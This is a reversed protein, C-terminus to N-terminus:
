VPRYQRIGIKTTLVTWGQVLRSGNSGWGVILIVILICGIRVGAFCVPEGRGRTSDDPAAEGAALERANRAVLRHQNLGAQFDRNSGPLNTRKSRDERQLGEQANNPQISGGHCAPAPCADPVNCFSKNRHGSCVSFSQVVGLNEMAIQLCTREFFFITLMAHFDSRFFQLFAFLKCKSWRATTSLGCVALEIKEELVFVKNTGQGSIRLLHESSLEIKEELGQWYDLCILICICFVNFHLLSQPSKFHSFCENM